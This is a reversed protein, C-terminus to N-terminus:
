TMGRNYREKVNLNKFYTINKDLCRWHEVVIQEPLMDLTAPDYLVGWPSIVQRADRLFEDEFSQIGDSSQDSSAQETWDAESREHAQGLRPNKGSKNKFYNSM